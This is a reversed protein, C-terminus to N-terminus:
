INYKMKSQPNNKRYENLERILQLRREELSNQMYGNIYLRADKEKPNAEIECCIDIQINGNDDYRFNFSFGDNDEMSKSKAFDIWQPEICLADLLEISYTGKM